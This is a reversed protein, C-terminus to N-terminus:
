LKLERLGHLPGDYVPVGTSAATSGSSFTITCWLVDNRYFLDTRVSGDWSQAVAFIGSAKSGGKTASGRNGQITAYFESM